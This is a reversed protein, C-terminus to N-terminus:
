RAAEGPSINIRLEHTPPVACLFSFFGGAARPHPVFRLTPEQESFTVDVLTGDANRVVSHACFLLQPAGSAVALWGHVAQTGPHTGVWADVADHCNPKPAVAARVRLIERARRAAPLAEVLARALTELGGPYTSLITANASEEDTPTAPTNM